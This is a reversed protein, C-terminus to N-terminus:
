DFEGELKIRNGPHLLCAASILIEEAYTQREIRLCPDAESIELLDHQEKNPLIADVQHFGYSVPYLSDLYSEPTIDDFNQDLYEPAARDNVFREEIQFPVDNDYHVIVSHFATDGMDEPIQGSQWFEGDDTKNIAELKLIKQAHTHGEKTLSDAINHVQMFDGHYKEDSVFTGVGRTRTLTNDASLERLARNVTMRSIGLAKVFDNESPILDGPILAGKEIQATILLQIRRYAPLKPPTEAYLGKLEDLNM